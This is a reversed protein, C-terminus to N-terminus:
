EDSEKNADAYHNGTTNVKDLLDARAQAPTHAFNVVAPAPPVGGAAVQPLAAFAAAIATAITQDDM